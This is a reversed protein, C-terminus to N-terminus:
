LSGDKWHGMEGYSKRWIPNQLRYHSLECLASPPQGLMLARGCHIAATIIVSWDEWLGTCYLSGDEWQWIKFMPPGLSILHRIWPWLASIDSGPISSVWTKKEKLAYAKVSNMIFMFLVMFLTQPTKKEKFFIVFHSGGDSKEGNAKGHKQDQGQPKM